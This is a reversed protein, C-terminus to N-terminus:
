FGLNSDFDFSKIRKINKIFNEKNLIDIPKTHFTLISVSALRIREMFALLSPM